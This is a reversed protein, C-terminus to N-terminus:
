LKKWATRNYEIFYIFEDALYPQLENFSNMISEDSHYADDIVLDLRM